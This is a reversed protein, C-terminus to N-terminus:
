AAAEAFAPQVLDEPSRVALGSMHGQRWAAAGEEYISEVAAVMRDARFRRRVLRRGAQGLRRALPADRLIRIIAAATADSDGPPVLLGSVGDEVMEPIGGVRSAVIPRGTALAELVVLGQAERLSPLVSVDLGATVAPMDGRHGSFIVRDNRHAPSRTRKRDGSVLLGTARAQSRLGEFCSGEGVLLLRADPVAALVRPWAALLSAHGKEPELRAVCGVIPADVPIGLEAALPAAVQAPHYRRLDVGNPILEVRPRRPREAALKAVIARSVAVLRDVAPDLADLAALDADGRRRSSHIHNIVYPRERGLSELRLAARTGVIEAAYMHNHLVQAQWLVLREAVQRALEAEGAAGIVEVPVGSGRWRAVASGGTMAIVRVDFRERDLGDLLTAVHEQAGGSTGTAVLEVVRVRGQGERDRLVTTVAAPLVGIDSNM